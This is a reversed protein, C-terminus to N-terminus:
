ARSIVEVTRPSISLAEAIERNQLGRAVLAVVERERPTLRELRQRRESFESTARHTDADHAIANQLVEVLVSDDFPKELFDFAGAKMATRTTAVDGHATLVVVPLSVKKAALQQQLELGSMGPM